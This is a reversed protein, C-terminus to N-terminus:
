VTTHDLANVSVKASNGGLENGPEVPVGTKQLTEPQCGGVALEDGARVAEIRGHFSM